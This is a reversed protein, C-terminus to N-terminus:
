FGPPLLGGEFCRSNKEMAPEVRSFDPSFRPFHPTDGPYSDTHARASQSHRAAAGLGEAQRAGWIRRPPGRGAPEQNPFRTFIFGGRPPINREILTTRQQALFSTQARLRNKEQLRWFLATCSSFCSRIFNPVKTKSKALIRLSMRALFVSTSSAHRQESRMGRAITSLLTFLPCICLLMICPLTPSASSFLSQFTAHQFAFATSASCM